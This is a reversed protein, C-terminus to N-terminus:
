DKAHKVKTFQGLNVPKFKYTVNSFDIVDDQNIDTKATCGLLQLFQKQQITSEEPTRKFWLNELTLQEGKQIARRAVVAKKM